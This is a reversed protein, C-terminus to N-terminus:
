PSSRRGFVFQEIVRATDVGTRMPATMRWSWSNRLDSVEGEAARLLGLLRTNEQVQTAVQAECAALKAQCGTLQEALSIRKHSGASISAKPASADSSSGADQIPSIRTPPLGFEIIASVKHYSSPRYEIQKGMMAGAIIVHARDTRILEHRSITWLWEDLSDCETSIDWNDEPLPAGPGEADQRFVNLLGAQSKTRFATFDFFFATDHALRAECLERIQEYSTRERAFIVARTQALAQRVTPEEVDFSSPFVIVRSFRSEVASLFGPMAHFPKCWSGGGSIIATDGPEVLDLVRIDYERYPVDRLLNRM